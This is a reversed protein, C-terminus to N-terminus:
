PRVAARFAASDFTGGFSPSLAARARSNFDGMASMQQPLAGALEGGPGMAALDAVNCREALGAQDPWSGIMIGVPELHAARVADVTLATHNITGLGAAAVVLVTAAVEFALDLITWRGEDYPVLAGGAGEVLVSDCSTHLDIVRSVAEAQGLPPLGSLMAAHHPSLPDPYRRFEHTDRCGSLRSVEALDGPDGPAVGTQALKVVAVRGTACSALAATAVTKGVDTGTGTVILITM